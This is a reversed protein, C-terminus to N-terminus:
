SAICPQWAMDGILSSHQLGLGVEESLHGGLAVVDHNGGLGRLALEGIWCMDLVNISCNATSSLGCLIMTANIAALQLM